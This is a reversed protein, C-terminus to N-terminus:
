DNKPDQDAAPREIWGLLFLLLRCVIAAVMSLVVLMLMTAGLGQWSGTLLSLGASGAVGAIIATVVAETTTFGATLFTRRAMWAASVVAPLGGFVYGFVAFLAIVGVIDGALKGREAGEGSWGNAVAVIGIMALTGVLPGVLVIFLAVRLWRHKSQRNNGAENM